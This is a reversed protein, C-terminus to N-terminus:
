PKPPTVLNKILIDKIVVPGSAQNAQQLLEDHVMRLSIKDTLQEINTHNLVTIIRDKIRPLFLKLKEMDRPAVQLSMDMKVKGSQVNLGEMAFQMKPMELIARARAHESVIAYLQKQGVVYGITGVLALVSFYILVFAIMRIDGFQQLWNENENQTPM